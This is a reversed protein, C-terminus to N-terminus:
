AISLAYRDPTDIAATKPLMECFLIVLVTMVVSAYLVGLDGFWEQMLATALTSSLITAVNSGILLAGILRQKDDLLRTVIVADPDGDKSLSLMTARSSATMATESGSFFFALALFFLVALVILWDALMM